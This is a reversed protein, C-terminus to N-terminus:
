FLEEDELDETEENSFTDSTDDNSLNDGVTTRSLSDGPVSISNNKNDEVDQIFKDWKFLMPERVRAISPDDLMQQYALRIATKTFLTKNQVRNLIDIIDEDLDKELKVNLKTLKEKEM